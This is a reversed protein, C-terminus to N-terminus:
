VVAVAACSGLRMQSRCWLEHCRWISIWQVLGPISGAVEHNGTPNTLCQAVVPVGVRPKYFTKQASAGHQACLACCPGLCVARKALLLKCARPCFCGVLRYPYRRWPIQPPLNRNRTLQSSTRASGQPVDPLLPSTYILVTSFTRTLPFLAPRPESAPPHMPHEATPHALPAYCLQLESLDAPGTRLPGPPALIRAERLSLPPGRPHQPSAHVSPSPSCHTGASARLGTQPCHSIFISKLYM